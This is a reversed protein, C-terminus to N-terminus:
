LSNFRSQLLNGAEERERARGIRIADVLALLEYLKRDELASSPASKYLPSIAIGRVSGEPHSWVPPPDNDPVIISSLPQAMHATPIGREISGKEAVFVYRLGHRIFEELNRRNPRIKTGGEEAIALEAKLARRVSAHVESPSMSLEIALRNYSWNTGNVLLKLLVLIDQPKLIM